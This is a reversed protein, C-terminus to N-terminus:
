GATRYGKKIKITKYLEGNIYINAVLSPLNDLEYSQFTRTFGVSSVLYVTKSYGSELSDVYGVLYTSDTGFVEDKATNIFDVKIEITRTTTTYEGQEKKPLKEGSINKFKLAINPQFLTQGLSNYENWGTFSDVLRIGNVQEVEREARVQEYATQYRELAKKASDLLDAPHTENSYSTLLSIAEEIDANQAKSLLSNLAAKESQYVEAIAANSENIIKTAAPLLTSLPFKKKLRNLWDIAGAYNKKSYEDVASQYYYQDTEKLAAIEAELEKVRENLASNSRVVEDYDNKPVGCGALFSISVLLILLFIVMKNLPFTKKM